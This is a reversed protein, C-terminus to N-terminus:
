IHILSLGEPIEITGHLGLTGVGATQWRFTDLPSTEQQLDDEQAFCLRAGVLLAFFCLSKLYPAFM